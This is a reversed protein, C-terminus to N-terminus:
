LLSSLSQNLSTSSTLLPTEPASPTEGGPRGVLGQRELAAMAAALWGCNAFHAIPAAMAALLWLNSQKKYM